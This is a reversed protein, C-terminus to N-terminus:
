KSAGKVFPHGKKQWDALEMVVATVGTLGIDKLKKAGLTARGGTSCQVYIKRNM